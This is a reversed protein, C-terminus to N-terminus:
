LTDFAGRDDTWVLTIGSVTSSEASSSQSQQVFCLRRLRISAPMWRDTSNPASNHLGEAGLTLGDNFPLCHTQSAGERWTQSAAWRTPAPSSAVRTATSLALYSSELPTRIPEFESSDIVSLRRLSQLQFFFFFYFYLKDNCPLM